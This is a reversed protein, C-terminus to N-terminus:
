STLRETQSSGPSRLLRLFLSAPRKCNYPLGPLMTSPKPLRTQPDQALRCGPSHVLLAAPTSPLPHLIRSFFHYCPFHKLQGSLHLPLKSPTHTQDLSAHFTHLGDQVFISLPSSPVPSFPLWPPNHIPFFLQSHSLNLCPTQLCTNWNLSSLFTHLGDQVFASYSASPFLFFPGM